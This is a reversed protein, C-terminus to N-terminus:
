EFVKRYKPKLHEEFIEDRVKKLEKLREKKGKKSPKIVSRLKKLQKTYEEKRIDHLERLEQRIGERVLESFNSFYGERTLHKARNYLSKPLTILVKKMEM